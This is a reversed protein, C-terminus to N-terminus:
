QIISVKIVETNIMPKVQLPQAMEGTVERYVMIGSIILLLPTPTLIEVGVQSSGIQDM